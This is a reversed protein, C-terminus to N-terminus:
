SRQDRARRSRADFADVLGIPNKREVVSLFDFSYLFVFGDPLGVDGRTLHNARPAEVPLPIVRVPKSTEARLADAVYESAVWIEDVLEFSGHLRQPFRSVEWFWMGITYRGSFFAPGVEARFRPLEDANVCVVNHRLVGRRRAGRYPHQQRSETRGYATTAHPIHGAALGRALRRAAEGVGLEARLYGALNVGPLPPFSSVAIM